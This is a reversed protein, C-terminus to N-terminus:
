RGLPLPSPSKTVGFAFTTTIAGLGPIPRIARRLLVEYEAFSGVTIKAMYDDDGALLHAEVVEPTDRLAQEVGDVVEPTHRVLKLRAFATIALGVAAADVTARYGAIAGEAELRRVRRLCPSPSLGVRDALAQNTLRGDSQLERLIDLDIEDLTIM